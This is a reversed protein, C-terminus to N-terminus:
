ICASSQQPHNHWHKMTLLRKAAREMLQGKKKKKDERQKQYFLTSWIFRQLQAYHNVPGAQGTLQTLLRAKQPKLGLTNLALAMILPRM